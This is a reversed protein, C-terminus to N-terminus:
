WKPLLSIKLLGHGPYPSTIARQHGNDMSLELKRGIMAVPWDGARRYILGM